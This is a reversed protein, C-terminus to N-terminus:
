WCSHRRGSRTGGSASCRWCSHRRDSAVLAASAATQCSFQRGWFDSLILTLGRPGPSILTVGATRISGRAHGLPLTGYRIEPFSGCPKTPRRECRRSVEPFTLCGPKRQPLDQLQSAKRVYANEGTRESQPEGPRLQVGLSV